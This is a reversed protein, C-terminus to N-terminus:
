EGSVYGPKPEPGPARPVSTISPAGDNTAVFLVRTPTWAHIPHCDPGGYGTDYTYDLLPRAEAWGLVRHRNARVVGREDPEDDDGWGYNGIVIAEIPEGGAAKEIDQAFNSM